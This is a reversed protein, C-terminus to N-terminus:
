GTRSRTAISNWDPASNSEIVTNSFMAKGSRSCVSRSSSAIAALTASFSSVTRSEPMSSFIGDSREPPMRLRTASARESASSGSATSNSSGVDPSSGTVEAVM